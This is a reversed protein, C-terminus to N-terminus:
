TQALAQLAYTYCLKLLTIKLCVCGFFLSTASQCGGEQGLGKEPVCGAPAAQERSPSGRLDASVGLRGTYFCRRFAPQFVEPTTFSNLLGSSFDATNLLSTFSLQPSDRLVRLLFQLSPKKVGQFVLWNRVGTIEAEPVKREQLFLFRKEERQSTGGTHQPPLAPPASNQCARLLLQGRVNALRLTKPSRM